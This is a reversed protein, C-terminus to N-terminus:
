RIISVVVLTTESSPVRRISLADVQRDAMWLVGTLSDLVLKAVNDIDVNGGGATSGLAIDVSYRARKDWEGLAATADRGLAAIHAELLDESPSSFLQTRFEPLSASTRDTIGARYTVPFPRSKSDLAVAIDIRLDKASGSSKM